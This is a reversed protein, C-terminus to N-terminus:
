VYVVLIACLSYAYFEMKFRGLLIYAFCGVTLSASLPSIITFGYLYKVLNVGLDLVYITTAMLEDWVLVV